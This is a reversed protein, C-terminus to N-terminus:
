RKGLAKRMLEQSDLKEQEPTKPESSPKKNSPKCWNKLKQKWNKVENGKADYWKGNEATDNYYDYIYKIDLVYDLNKCYEGFEELTPIKFPTRRRKIKGDVEESSKEKKVEKKVGEREGKREGERERSVKKGGKRGNKSRIESLEKIKSIEKSIFDVCLYEDNEGEMHCIGLLIFTQKVKSLEDCSLKLRRPLLEDVLVRGDNLMATAALEMFIGKEQYSLLQVKGTSSLWINANFLFYYLADNNKKPRRPKAM